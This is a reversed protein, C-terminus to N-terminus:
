QSDGRRQRTHVKETCIWDPWELLVGCFLEKEYLILIRRLRSLTLLSLLIFFKTKSSLLFTSEEEKALDVFTYYNYNPKTLIKPNDQTKLARWPEM